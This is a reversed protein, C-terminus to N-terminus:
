HFKDLTCCNCPFLCFFLLDLQLIQAEFPHDQYLKQYTCYVKGICFLSDLQHYQLQEVMCFFCWMGVLDLQAPKSTSCHIWTNGPDNNRWPNTISIWFWSIGWAERISRSFVVYRHTDLPTCMGQYVWSHLWVETWWFAQKLTLSQFICKQQLHHTHM